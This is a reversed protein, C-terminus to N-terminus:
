DLIISDFDDPIVIKGGFASGAERKLVEEQGRFSRQIHVLALIGVDAARAVRGADLAATHNFAPKGPELTSSENADHILLDAKSAFEALEPNYETDGSYVISRGDIDLRVALTPVSHSAPITSLHIEEGLPLSSSSTSSLPVFTCTDRLYDSMEPYVTRTITEFADPLQEHCVVRLRSQCRALFRELMLMPFGLTHDGHIHSVFLIHLQSATIGARSLQAVIHPGCEALIRTEGHTVLFAVNARDASSLAASTGLFTVVVPNVTKRTTM